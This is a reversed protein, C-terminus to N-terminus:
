TFYRLTKYVQLRQNVASLFWCCIQSRPLATAVRGTLKRNTPLESTILKPHDTLLNIQRLPAQCPNPCVKYIERM